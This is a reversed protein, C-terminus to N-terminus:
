PHPCVEEGRYLGSACDSGRHSKPCCSLPCCRRFCRKLASYIPSLHGLRRGARTAELVFAAAMVYLCALIFLFM